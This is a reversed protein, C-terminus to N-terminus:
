QPHCSFERRILRRVQRESLYQTRDILGAFERLLDTLSDNWPEGESTNRIAELLRPVLNRHQRLPLPIARLRDVLTCWRVDRQALDHFKQGEETEPSLPEERQYFNDLRWDRIINPHALTGVFFSLYSDIRSHKRVSELIRQELDERSMDPTVRIVEPCSIHATVGQMNQGAFVAIAGKGDKQQVSPAPRGHGDTFRQLLVPFYAGGALRAAELVGDLSGNLNYYREPFERYRKQVASFIGPTDLHGRADWTRAGRGSQPCIVHHTGYYISEQAMTQYLRRMEQPSAKQDRSTTHFGIANISTTIGTLRAVLSREYNGGDALIRLRPDADFRFFMTEAHPWLIGIVPKGSPIEQLRKLDCSLTVGNMDAYDYAFKAFLVDGLKIAKPRIPSPQKKAVTDWYDKLVPKAGELSWRLGLLRTILPVASLFGLLGGLTSLRPRVKRTPPLPKSTDAFDCEQAPRPKTALVGSGTAILERYAKPTLRKERDMQMEALTKHTTVIKENFAAISVILAAIAPLCSINGSLAATAFLTPILVSGRLGSIAAELRGTADNVLQLARNEPYPTVAPQNRCFRLGEVVFRALVPSYAIAGALWAVTEPSSTLPRDPGRDALAQVGYTLSTLAAAGAALAVPLGRRLSPAWPETAPQQPSSYTSLPPIPIGMGRYVATPDIFSPPQNIFLGGVRSMTM